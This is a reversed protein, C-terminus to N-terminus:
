ARDLNFVIKANQSLFLSTAQDSLNLSNLNALCDSAPWFPHNSGFLVHHRRSSRMYQVLDAPYRSAKYASTDVFVNPYKMLLSLVESLWPVGIHGALIRLDPFELAVRDLYPIPRGPESQRLPGTHGVQTCFPINLECCEAYLPYYRRDDPPLGWLWPLIRLGKFGDRKVRLRLERVADMPRQLDVSAVGIFREPFRKCIEAVEDNSILPGTPGWWSCLMGITVGALDMDKLTSEVPHSVESVKGPKWRRLSDFM